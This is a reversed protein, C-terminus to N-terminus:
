AERIFQIVVWVLERPPDPEGGVVCVLSAHLETGIGTGPYLRAAAVRPAGTVLGLISLEESIPSYVVNLTVRTAPGALAGFTKELYV